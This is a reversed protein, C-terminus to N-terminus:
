SLAVTLALVLVLLVLFALMRAERLYGSISWLSLVLWPLLLFSVWSRVESFHPAVVPVGGAM